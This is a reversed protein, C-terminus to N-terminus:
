LLKKSKDMEQAQKVRTLLQMDVPIDRMTHRTTRNEHPFKLNKLGFFAGLRLATDPLGIEIDIMKLHPRKAFFDRMRENHNGIWNELDSVKLGQEPSQKILNPVDYFDLIRKMHYWNWMSVAHDHVNRTNLIYYADPYQQTLEEIMTIQPWVNYLHCNIELFAQYSELVGGLLPKGNKSNEEITCGVYVTDKGQRIDHHCSPIGVKQFM